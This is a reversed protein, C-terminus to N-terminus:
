DLAVVVKGFHQGRALYQYAEVVKAYPFVRDIVPRIAHREVFRALAETTERSGVMLGALSQTALLALGLAARAGMFARYLRQITSASIAGRAENTAM